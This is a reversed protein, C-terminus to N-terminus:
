NTLFIKIHFTRMHLIDFIYKTIKRERKNYMSMSMRWYAVRWNQKGGFNAGLYLVCGSYHHTNHPAIGHSTYMDYMLM